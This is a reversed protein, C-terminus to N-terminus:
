ISKLSANQEYDKTKELIASCYEEIFGDRYTGALAIIEARMEKIIAEQTDILERSDHLANAYDFIKAEGKPCNWEDPKSLALDCDDCYVGCMTDAFIQENSVSM